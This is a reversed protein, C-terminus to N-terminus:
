AQLDIDAGGFGGDLDQVASLTDGAMSPLVGAAVGGDGLVHGRMM